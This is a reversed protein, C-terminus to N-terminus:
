LAAGLRAMREPRSAQELEEFLEWLRAAAWSEPSKGGYTDQILWLRERATRWCQCRPPRHSRCNRIAMAGARMERGVWECDHLLGVPTQVVHLTNSLFDAKPKPQARNALAVTLRVGLDNRQWSSLCFQKANQIIYELELISADRSRRLIADVDACELHIAPAADPVKPEAGSKSPSPQSIERYLREVPTINSSHNYAM